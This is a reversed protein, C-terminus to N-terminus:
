YNITLFLIVVGIHYELKSYCMDMISSGVRAQCGRLIFLQSFAFPHNLGVHEILDAPLSYSTENVIYWTHNTISSFYYPIYGVTEM